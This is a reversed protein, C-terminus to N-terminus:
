EEFSQYILTRVLGIDDGIFNDGDKVVVDLLVM